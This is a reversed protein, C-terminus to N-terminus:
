RRGATSFAGSVAALTEEKAGTPMERGGGGGRRSGGGGGARKHMM